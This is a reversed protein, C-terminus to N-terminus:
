KQEGGEGGNKKTKRGSHIRRSKHECVPRTGMILPWCPNVWCKEKGGRGRTSPKGKVGSLIGEVEEKEHTASGRGEGGKRRRLVHSAKGAAKLIAHDGEGEFDDPRGRGGTLWRVIKRKKNLSFCLGGNVEGRRQSFGEKMRRECPYRGKKETEFHRKMKGSEHFVYLAFKCREKLIEWRSEKKGESLIL